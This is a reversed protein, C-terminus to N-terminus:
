IHLTWTAPKAGKVIKELSRKEKTLLADSGLGTKDRTLKEEVGSTHCSKISCSQQVAIISSYASKPKIGIEQCTQCSEMQQTLESQVKRM